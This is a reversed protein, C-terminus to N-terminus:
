AHRRWARTGRGARPTRRAAGSRARRVLRSRASAARTAPKQGLYRLHRGPDARARVPVGRREGPVPRALHLSGEPWGAALVNVREGALMRRIVSLKFERSFVRASRPIWNEERLSSFQGCKGHRMKPIWEM